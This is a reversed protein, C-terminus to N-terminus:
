KRAYVQRGIAELLNNYITEAEDSEITITISDDDVHDVLIDHSYDKVLRIVNDRTEDTFQIKYTSMMIYQPLHFM